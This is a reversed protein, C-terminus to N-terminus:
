GVIFVNKIQYTKGTPYNDRVSTIESIASEGLALIFLGKIQRELVDRQEHLVERVIIMQNLDIRKTM